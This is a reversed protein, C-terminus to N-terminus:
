WVWGGVYKSLFRHFPASKRFPAAHAILSGLGFPPAPRYEPSLGFLGIQKKIYIIFLAMLTSIVSRLNILRKKYPVLDLRLYISSAQPKGRHM